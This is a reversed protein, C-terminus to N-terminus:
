LQLATSYSVVCWTITTRKGCTELACATLLQSLWLWVTDVVHANALVRASGWTAFCRRENAQHTSVSVSIFVTTARVLGAVVTSEM